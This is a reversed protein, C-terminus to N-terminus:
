LYYNFQGMISGYHWQWYQQAYPVTAGFNIEKDRPTGEKGPYFKLGFTAVDFTYTGGGFQEDPGLTRAYLYTEAFGGVRDSFSYFLSAGGTLNPVVGQYVTLDTGGIIMVDLKGFQKGIGLQPRIGPYAPNANVRLDLMGTVLMKTRPSKVFAYRAGVEANFGLYRRRFGGHVSLNRLIAHEYDLVLNAYSPLGYEFAAQFRTRPNINELQLPHAFDLESDMADVGTEGGPRTAYLQDTLDEIQKEIRSRYPTTPFQALYQEWGEIQEDLDLKALRELTKRYVAETDGSTPDTDEDELDLKDGETDRFEDLDDDKEDGDDPVPPPAPVPPAPVPAPGPMPLEDDLDLDDEDDDAASAATSALLLPLLLLTRLSPM